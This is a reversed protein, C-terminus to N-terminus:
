KDKREGYSCFDDARVFPVESATKMDWQPNFCSNASANYHKCNKCRVLEPLKELDEAIERLAKSACITHGSVWVRLADTYGDELIRDMGM